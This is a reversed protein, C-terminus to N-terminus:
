PPPHCPLAFTPSLRGGPCVPQPPLLQGLPYAGPEGTGSDSAQLKLARQTSPQVRSLNELCLTTSRM